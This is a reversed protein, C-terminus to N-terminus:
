FVGDIINVFHEKIFAQANKNFAKNVIKASDKEMEGYSSHDKEIDELIDQTFKGFLKGFDKQTVEGFRSIVNHLRNETIYECALSLMASQEDTLPVIVKPEKSKHEKEKFKENKNKLIVRSGNGFFAPTAPKLVVGESINGEIIPLGFKSPLTSPNDNPYKLCQEFTGRYLAEAYHFGVMKMIESFIDYSIIAGNIQLDFAYFDNWPCYSVGKQVTVADPDRPVDPHPYSGGFLEGYLVIEINDNVEIYGDEEMNAIMETCIKYLLALHQSYLEVVREWGFFREGTALFSSRKACRLGEENLWFSFNSGHIKESVVWDKKDIDRILIEDVTKQRNCNDISTYKKFNM